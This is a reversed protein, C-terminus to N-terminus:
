PVAEGILSKDAIAPVLSGWIHYLIDYASNHTQLFTTLESQMGTVHEVSTGYEVLVDWLSQIGDESLMQYRYSNTFQLINYANEVYPNSM